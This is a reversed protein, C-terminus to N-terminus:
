NKRCEKKSLYKQGEVFTDAYIKTINAIQGDTLNATGRYDKGNKLEKEIFGTIMSTMYSNVTIIDEEIKNKRTQRTTEAVAKTNMFQNDNYFKLLESYDGKKIKDVDIKLVELTEKHDKLIKESAGEGLTTTRTGEKNTSSRLYGRLDNMLQQQSSATARQSSAKNLDDLSFKFDKVGRIAEWLGSALNQFLPLLAMGALYLLSFMGIPSKVVGLVTSMIGATKQGAKESLTISKRYDSLSQMFMPLNNSLSMAFTRMGLAANPLETMLISLNQKFMRSQGYPILEENNPNGIVPRRNGLNSKSLASELRVANNLEKTRITLESRNKNQREM